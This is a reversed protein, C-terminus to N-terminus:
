AKAYNEGVSFWSQDTHDFSYLSSTITSVESAIDYAANISRGKDRVSSVRSPVVPIALLSVHLPVSLSLSRGGVALLLKGPMHTPLVDQM